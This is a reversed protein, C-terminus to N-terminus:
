EVHLTASAEFGNWSASIEYDGAAVIKDNEDLMDSPIDWSIAATDLVPTYTLNKIVRNFVWTKNLVFKDGVKMTAKNTMDIVAAVDPYYKYGSIVVSRGDGWGPHMYVYAQREYFGGVYDTLISEYHSTNSVMNLCDPEDSTAKASRNYWYGKFNTSNSKGAMLGDDWLYVNTSYTNYQGQYGESYLGEFVYVLHHGERTAGYQLSSLDSNSFDYVIKGESDEKTYRDDYQDIVVSSPDFDYDVADAAARIEDTILNTVPKPQKSSKQASSSSQIPTGNKEFNSAVASSTIVAAAIVLAGAGLKALEIIGKSM